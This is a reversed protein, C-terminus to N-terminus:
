RHRPRAAPFFETEGDFEIPKGNVDLRSRRPRPPEPELRAGVYAFGNSLLWDVLREAEVHNGRILGATTARRIIESKTIEDLM